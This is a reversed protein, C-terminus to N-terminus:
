FPMSLVVRSFASCPLWFEFTPAILSGGDFWTSEIYFRADYTFNIPNTGTNDEKMKEQVEGQAEERRHGIPSSM